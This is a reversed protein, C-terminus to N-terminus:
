FLVDPKILVALRLMEWPSGGCRSCLAYAYESGIGSMMITFDCSPVDPSNPTCRLSVSKVSQTRCNSGQATTSWSETAVYM